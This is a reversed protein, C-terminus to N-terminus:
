YFIIYSKFCFCQFVNSHGNERTTSNSQVSLLVFCDLRSTNANARHICDAPQGVQKQQTCFVYINSRDVLRNADSKKQYKTPHLRTAIAMHEQKPMVAKKTIGPICNSTTLHQLKPLSGVCLSFHQEKISWGTTHSTFQAM